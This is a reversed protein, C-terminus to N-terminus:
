LLQRAKIEVYRNILEASLREDDVPCFQVGRRRLRSGTERLGQWALHGALRAYLDDDSSVPDGEFLERTEPGRIMGVVLVHRRVLDVNRCFSEALLPNGLDTLVVVLARRRIRARLISFLEDYDPTVLETRLRYIADRCANYHAAGGGSRVFTHVRDSFALIGFLDGQRQAALGTLLGAAIFRELVPEDGAHRGSMRSTDIAVYIEQTREVQFLKTIPRSRKATAKWHIDEYSDGPVYERLKEFERGHGVMRQAHLGAAGRRLFLSSVNRRERAVDPYVRLECAAPLVRRVTWLRFPSPVGLGIADLTFGGRRHATGEWAVQSSEAGGPVTVALVPAESEVSDPLPLAIELSLPRRGPNTIGLLFQGPKHRAMRIVEPLTVALPAARRLGAVADGAALCFLIIGLGAAVAHGAPHVMGAATVPILVAALAVLRSSPIIM